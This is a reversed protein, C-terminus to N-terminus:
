MGKARTLTLVQVKCAGSNLLMKSCEDCTSGTTFVDDVLLVSRGSIKHSQPVLFAGKVNRRREQENRIEIQPRTERIRRLGFLDCSVGAYGALGSALIVSQNYERQRLKNIHLPVPVVSDFHDLDDPLNTTLIDLLVDENSLKGEYKFSIIMDRIKGEYIAISRAKEFCFKGELCKGCLHDSSENDWELNERDEPSFYGFPIGCKRCFSWDNVFRIDSLCLSCLNENRLAATRCSPCVKPFLIDLM